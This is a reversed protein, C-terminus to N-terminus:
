SGSYINKLSVELGFPPHAHSLFSSYVSDDYKQGRNRIYSRHPRRIGNRGSSQGDDIVIEKEKFSRCLM